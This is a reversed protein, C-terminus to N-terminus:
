EWILIVSLRIIDRLSPVVVCVYYIGSFFAVLILLVTNSTSYTHPWLSLYYCLTLIPMESWVSHLVHVGAIVYLPVHLTMTFYNVIDYSNRYPHCVYSSALREYRLVKGGM